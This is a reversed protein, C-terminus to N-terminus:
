LCHRTTSAARSSPCGEPTSRHPLMREAHGPTADPRGILSSLSAERRAWCAPLMRACRTILASSTTASIILVPPPHTLVKRGIERASWGLSKVSPAWTCTGFVCTLPLDPIAATAMGNTRPRARIANFRTAPWDRTSAQGNISGAGIAQRESRLPASIAPPTKKAATKHAITIHIDTARSRRFRPDTM